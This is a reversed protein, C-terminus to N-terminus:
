PELMGITSIRLPQKGLDAAAKSILGARVLEARDMDSIDAYLNNDRLLDQITRLQGLYPTLVVIQTTAYGQQGLYKVCNLVMEAEFPNRKSEKVTPDRRDRIDKDSAEQKGHNLFVVRDRLGRIRERGSTNPGDVLDPYTLQRPFKSIEPVMRHQKSLTKHSAGQIILREFLSRNLDFGDGKEVTLTFNNVKPRLQKHDGILVLQKVTPAMATLVHSELIEGAEEVIIVDPKAARILRSQKAAGTTTCGIISKQQLKHVDAEGFQVDIEHQLDNYRGVWDQLTAFREDLLMATWRQVHSKREDPGMSWIAKCESPISNTFIGPNTGKLWREYLYDAAIKRGGKGAHQWGTNDDPVRLANYFDQDEFFELLGSIEEWPASFSRAHRCKSSFHRYEGYAKKVQGAADLAERKLSEIIM